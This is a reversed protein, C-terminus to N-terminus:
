GIIFQTPFVSRYFDITSFVPQHIGAYVLLLDIDSYLSNLFYNGVGACRSEYFASGTVLDDGADSLIEIRM